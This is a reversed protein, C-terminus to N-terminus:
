MRNRLRPKTAPPAATQSPPILGLKEALELKAAEYERKLRDALVAVPPIDRVSGSGQGAAWILRWTKSREGPPPTVREATTGERKIKEADYGNDDISKRLFNAPQATFASTYVIDAAKSDVIMQKYADDARAEKTATFLTGMVAFDAGISQAALIDHGTSMCGALALPGKFFQRIEDVLAIPNMTSGQGGAGATIAILGDAGAEVARKAEETSAVDHMVIGGYDHIQAIQDKTPHASALVIPVRHRIVAALDDNLRANSEQFILNAAYPGIKAAPNEQKLRSIGADIEALWEDFGASTRQGFAPISGVFGEKVSALVLEPTSNLFLPAVILPLSTAAKIEETIPSHITM